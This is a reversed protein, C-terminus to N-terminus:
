NREFVPREMRPQPVKAPQALGGVRELQVSAKQAERRSTIRGAGQARAFEQEGKM